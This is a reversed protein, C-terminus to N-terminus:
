GAHLSQRLAESAPSPAIGLTISLTQQLRRYVALAEAIRQGQRYCRMLGQYFQEALPDTEIGRSYLAAARDLEGLQELRQAEGALHRIFKARLRERMSVAWVSDPDNALFNGHYLSFAKHLSEHDGERSRQPADSESLLREFAWADVWVRRSDLSLRGEDLDIAEPDGLLKRLRRLAAAFAEQAADGENDRWLTDSLQQGSVDRGGLAILAKLLMLLKKPAKRSFAAPADDLVISFRGLTYIRVPWPWHDTDPSEPLLHRKRILFRVFPVEIGAKLARACLRSMMPPYWHYHNLYSQNRGIALANRLLGDCRPLDSQRLSLYAGLLQSLYDHLRGPIPTVSVQFNRVQAHAEAYEECEIHLIALLLFGLARERLNGMEQDAEFSAVCYKRAAVLDRQMLALLAKTQLYVPVDLRQGSPQMADLEECVTTAAALDGANVYVLFLFTRLYGCLFSLGNEEAIALGEKLANTALAHDALSLCPCRSYVFYWFSRLYAQAAPDRLLPVVSLAVQQGRAIDGIGDYANALHIGVYIRVNVDSESELLPFVREALRALAPLDTGRNSRALLLVSLGRAHAEASVRPRTEDLLSALKAAWDDIREWHCYEHIYAHIILVAAMIQGDIDNTAAFGKYALELTLRGQTPAAQWQCAGLWYRLWPRTELWSVPLRTIWYQLTRHRGQAHMRPALRLILRYAEERAQAELHLEVADELQGDAELLAACRGHLESIGATTYTTRAQDLLFARFLAHYHYQYGLAADGRKSVFLRRRCLHDLLKVAESDGCLAEAQTPSFHPLCATRVLIRQSREPMVNFIQAAFYNFVADLSEPQALVNVTGTQKLRELMLVLGAAWGDSREQLLRVTQDDLQRAANGIAATEDSTLRLEEWGVHAVASNAIARAYQQPPEARSIVILNIGDRIQSLAEHLLDHLASEPAADQYNDLVLAASAPMRGFLDRFFRRTFGPLDLLYEPTLSPLPKVRRAAKRPGALGLYYFFTAPDADASDVQYWLHPLRRAELYSAVLSTKGAGPPGAIWLVPRQRQADLLAFLRSRPVIRPLRPRSLKALAAPGRAVGGEPMQRTAGTRESGSSSSVVSAEYCHPAESRGRAPQESRM